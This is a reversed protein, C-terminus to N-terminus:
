EQKKSNKRYETPTSNNQKKMYFIFSNISVFGSKRAVETISLDTNVLLEKAKLLRCHILFQYPTVKFKKLFKKNFESEKYGNNKCIIKIIDDNDIDEYIIEKLEKFFLDSTELYSYIIEKKMLNYLTDIINSKDINKKECIIEQFYTIFISSIVPIDSLDINYKYVFNEVVEKKIALVYFSTNKINEIQLKQNAEFYYINKPMNIIENIKILSLPILFYSYKDDIYIIETGDYCIENYIIFEENIVAKLSKNKDTKEIENIGKYEKRYKTPTIKNKKIFIESFYKGNKFGIEKAIDDVSLETYKLLMKANSIRIKLIFKHLPIRYYKYFLKSLSNVTYNHLKAVEEIINPNNYNTAIYNAISYFKDKKSIISKRGDKKESLGLNILEKCILEKLTELLEYKFTNNERYIKSFRLIYLALKKNFPFDYNFESNSPYGMDKLVNNFYENDICIDIYSSVSSDLDMEIGHMRNPSIPYITDAEGIYKNGEFLIGNLNTLSIVFEYEPHKHYFKSKQIQKNFHFFIIRFDELAFIEYKGKLEELKNVDKIVNDEIKEM